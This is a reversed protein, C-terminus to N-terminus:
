NTKKDDGGEIHKRLNRVRSIVSKQYREEGIFFIYIELLYGLVVNKRSGYTTNLNGLARMTGDVLEETTSVNWGVKMYNSGESSTFGPLVTLFDFKDKYKMASSQSLYRGYAKSASSCSMGPFPMLSSMSCISIVASRLGKAQHRQNFLPLVQKTLFTQPFINIVSLDIAEKLSMEAISAAKYLGVNNVLISIDLNGIQQYIKNYFETNSGQSFDAAIGIFELSSDDSQCFTKKLEIIRQNLKDPSRSVLIVNFNRKALSQVFEWGIGDTCGTVLAWSNKGYRSQLDKEFM